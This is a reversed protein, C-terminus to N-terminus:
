GDGATGARKLSANERTLQKRLLTVLTTIQGLNEHPAHELWFSRALRECTFLLFVLPFNIVNVFLSWWNIPAFVLLAASGMLQLMFFICWILTVRRTYSKITMPLPGHIVRAFFTVVPERGSTLSYAFLTLLGAYTLAHPLAAFLILCDRLPLLGFALGLAGLGVIALARWATKIRRSAWYVGLTLQALLLVRAPVGPQEANIFLHALLPLSIVFIPLVQHM